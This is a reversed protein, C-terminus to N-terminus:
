SPKDAQEAYLKNSLSIHKLLAVFKEPERKLLLDPGCDRGVVSAKDKVGRQRSDNKALVRMPLGENSDRIHEVPVLARSWSALCLQFRAVEFMREPSCPISPFQARSPCYM